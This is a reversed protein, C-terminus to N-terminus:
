LLNSSIWGSLPHQPLSTRVQLWLLLLRIPPSRIRTPKMVSCRCSLRCRVIGLDWIRKRKCYPPQKIFAQLFFDGNDLRSPIRSASMWDINTSKMSGYGCASFIRMRLREWAKGEQASEPSRCRLPESHCGFTGSKSNTITALALWLPALLTLARIYVWFSSFRRLPLSFCPFCTTIKLSILLSFFVYNDLGAPYFPSMTNWGSSERGGREHVLITFLACTIIASCGNKMSSSLQHSHARMVILPHARLRHMRRSWHLWLHTSLLLLLLSHLQSLFVPWEVLVYETLLCEPFLLTM